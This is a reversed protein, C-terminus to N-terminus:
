RGARECEASKKQYVKPSELSFGGIQGGSKKEKEGGATHFERGESTLFVGM